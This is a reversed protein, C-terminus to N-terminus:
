PLNIALIIKKCAEDFNNDIESNPIRIVKIGLENLYMTRIEDYEMVEQEYHHVGDLEVAVKEKGCYFDLIYAGVIRQRTFRPRFDRLFCYWLRNEQRTGKKRMEQARPKLQRVYLKMGNRRAGKACSPPAAAAAPTSGRAAQNVERPQAEHPRIGKM